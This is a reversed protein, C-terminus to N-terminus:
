CELYDAALALELSIEPPIEMDPVHTMDLYRDKFHLYECVKELVVGPINTFRCIGEDAEKFNGAFGFM